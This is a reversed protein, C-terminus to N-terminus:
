GLPVTVVLAGGRGLTRRLKSVLSQLANAAGAPIAEGWLDDALRDTTVTEGAAVVLLALLTRLRTGPVPVDEDRESVSLTGLIGFDV